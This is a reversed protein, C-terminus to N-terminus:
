EEITENKRDKDPKKPQDKPATVFKDAPKEELLISITKKLAVQRKPATSNLARTFNDKLAANTIREM